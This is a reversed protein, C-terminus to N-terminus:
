NKIHNIVKDILNSVDGYMKKNKVSKFVYRNKIDELDEILDQVKASDGKNLESQKKIEIDSIAKLEADKKAKLEAELKYREERDKRENEVRVEEEKAKRLQEEREHELHQEAGIKIESLGSKYEKEPLSILKNYDRIFIIFPRLENDRKNRVEEREKRETEVKVRIQEANKEAEKKQEALKAENEAKIKAVKKAEIKRLREAEIKQDAIIKDNRAKIKAAKESEIKAVRVREKEAKEAEVKLKENEVEILRLREADAKEAEIRDHEAKKEAAIRDEYEAKKTNLYAIWVDNEMYGLQREHADELYKSLMEVRKTQLEEVKKLQQIEYYNEIGSLKEEMQVIPLTEKNKWADVFKGAALFYAKQTKHISAIGTRVKVLAKRTTAAETCTKITIEETLLNEYVKALGDREVIKPMFADEISKVKESDLGYEAPNIKTIQTTM